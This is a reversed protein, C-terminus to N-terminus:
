TMGAYAPIWLTQPAGIGRGRRRPVTQVPTGAHRGGEAHNALLRDKLAFQQRNSYIGVRCRSM